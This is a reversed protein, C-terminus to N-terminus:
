EEEAPAASAVPGVPAAITVIRTVALRRVGIRLESRGEVLKRFSELNKVPEGDVTTVIEYPKIGAVAARGGAKVKAVLVGTDEPKLQFYNRVEYTLDCVSMGLKSDNFKEATEFSEPAATVTFPYEHIRGDSVVALKAKGGIGIGGLLKNLANRTTGWPAPIQDYYQPPVQDYRDWPFQDMESGFQYGEFKVPAASGDPTVSLLIDGTRIGLRAAPSDPYVYTVLLGNKGDETFEAAKNARALEPGLQQFEIGLWAIKEEGEQPVNAPDFNGALALVMSAAVAETSAYDRDLKRRELPLSVLEGNETFVYGQRLLRGAPVVMGRFGVDFSELKQPFVRLELKDGFSKLQADYVSAGSLKGADGRYFAIGGGPLPQEPEAVLAGFFQLSGVFRAPIEKGDVTLVIRSLRATEAPSLSAAILVKCDKMRIAIGDAENRNESRRQYHAAFGTLPKQPKLRIRVPYLNKELMAKFEALKRGHEAASVQKWASPVAEAPATGVDLRDNMSLAAVEGKENVVLVNAATKVYTEGNGLNRVVAAPAWPATFAHEVGSEESRSFGFRKGEAKPNFALPVVGPVPSATKLLVSKQAPYYAVVKAPYRKGGFVLDLSEIWEPLAGIDSSIFEDPAVAYGPVKFPRQDEILSDASGSHMSRCGPCYYQVTFEPRKGNEDPRFFYEVDVLSASLKDLLKVSLERLEAADPAKETEAAAAAFAGSLLIALFVNRSKKM